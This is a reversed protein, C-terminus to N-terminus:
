CTSFPFSYVSAAYNSLAVAQEELAPRPPLFLHVIPGPLVWETNGDKQWGFKKDDLEEIRLEMTGPIDFQFAHAFAERPNKMLRQKFDESKWALAIAQLWVEKWETIDSFDLGSEMYFNSV